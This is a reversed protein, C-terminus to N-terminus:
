IAHRISKLVEFSGSVLKGVTKKWEHEAAFRVVEYQSFELDDWKVKVPMERQVPQGKDGILTILNKVFMEVREGIVAYSKIIGFNKLFEAVELRNALNIYKLKGHMKYAFRINSEGRVFFAKEPLEIAAEFEAISRRKTETIM